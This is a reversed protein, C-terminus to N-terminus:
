QSEEHYNELEKVYVDVENRDRFIQQFVAIVRDKRGAELLNRLEVVFKDASMPAQEELKWQTLTKVNLTPKANEIVLAPNDVRITRLAVHQAGPWMAFFEASLEDHTYLKEPVKWKKKKRGFLWEFM